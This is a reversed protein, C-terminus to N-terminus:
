YKIWYPKYLVLEGDRLYVYVRVKILKGAPLNITGNVYKFKSISFYDGKTYNSVDGDSLNMDEPFGSHFIQGDRNIDAIICVFGSLTEKMEVNLLRFTVSLNVDEDDTFMKVGNIDVLGKDVNPNRNDETYYVSFKENTFIQTITTDPITKDIKVITYDESDLKQRIDRFKNNEEKLVVIRNNLEDIKSDMQVNEQTLYVSWVVSVILLIICLAALVIIIKFNRYKINLTRIRQASRIIILTIIDKTM